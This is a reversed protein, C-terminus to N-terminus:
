AVVEVHGVVMLKSIYGRPDVKEKTEPNRVVIDELTGGKRGLGKLAEYVAARISGSQLKSRGGDVVRFRAGTLKVKTSRESVARPTDAKAADSLKKALTGSKFPKAPKDAATNKDAASLLAAVRRRGAAISGFRTVPKPSLTNHLKVLEPGTM